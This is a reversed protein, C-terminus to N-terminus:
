FVVNHHRVRNDINDIMSFTNRLNLTLGLNHCLLQWTCTLTDIRNSIRTTKGNDVLRIMEKRTYHEIYISIRTDLLFITYYTLLSGDYTLINAHMLIQSICHCCLILFALITLFSSLKHTYHTTHTPAAM